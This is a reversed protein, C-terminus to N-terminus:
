SGETIFFISIIFVLGIKLYPASIKFVNNIIQFFSPIIVSWPKFFSTISFSVILFCVFVLYLKAYLSSSVIVEYNLHFTAVGTLLNVLEIPNGNETFLLYIVPAAFIFLIFLPASLYILKNLRKKTEYEYHHDYKWVVSMIFIGISIYPLVSLLLIWTNM